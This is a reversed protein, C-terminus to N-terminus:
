VVAVAAGQPLRLSRRRVTIARRMLAVLPAVVCAFFMALILVFVIRGLRHAVWIGAGM